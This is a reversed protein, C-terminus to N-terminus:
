QYLKIFSVQDGIISCYEMPVSIHRNGCKLQICQLYPYKIRLNRQAFYEHVMKTTGNEKSMVEYASRKGLDLFKLIGNNMDDIKYCIELDCLHDKLKKVVVASLSKSLDISCRPTEREIAHLLDILSTFRQPFARHKVDINLLPCISGDQEDLLIRQHLGSRLEYHEKIDPLEDMLKLFLSRGDQIGHNLHEQHYASQQVFM